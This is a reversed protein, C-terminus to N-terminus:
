KLPYRQLLKQEERVFNDLFGGPRHFISVDDPIRSYEAERNLLSASFLETDFAQRQSKFFACIGAVAAGVAADLNEL